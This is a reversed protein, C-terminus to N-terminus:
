GGFLGKLKEGAGGTLEDVKEQVKEKAKAEAQKKLDDLSVGAVKSAAQNIRDIVQKMVQAGTSGGKDRGIGTIEIAPLTAELPKDSLPTVVAVRGDTITLRDIIVKKEGSGADGGDNTDSAQGGTQGGSTSATTQELNKVLQQLNSGAKGGPEYTIAPGQITLSKIEIVDSTLSDTNVAVDIAGLRFAESSKYGDPNGIVLDSLGGEGSFISVDAGGLTVATKTYQPAYEEIGAEILSNLNVYLYGVGGVVLILVAAVLGIFIKKM